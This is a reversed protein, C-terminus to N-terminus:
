SWIFQIGGIEEIRATIASINRRANAAQGKGNWHRILHELIQDQYPVCFTYQFNYVLQGTYETYVSKQGSAIQKRTEDYYNINGLFAKGNEVKYAEIQKRNLDNLTCDSEGIECWGGKSAVHRYIEQKVEAVTQM